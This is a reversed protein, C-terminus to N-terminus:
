KDRIVLRQFVHERDGFELTWTGEKTEDRMLALDSQALFVLVSKLFAGSQFAKPRSIEMTAELWTAGGGKKQENFCSVIHKDGVGSDALFQRVRNQALASQRDLHVEVPRAHSPSPTSTGPIRALVGKWRDWNRWAFFAGVCLVGIIFADWLM